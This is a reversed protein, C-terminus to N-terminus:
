LPVKQNLHSSPLHYTTCSQLSMQQLQLDCKSVFFYCYTDEEEEYKVEM